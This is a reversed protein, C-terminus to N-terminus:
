AAAKATAGEVRILINGLLHSVQEMSRVFPICQDVFDMANGDFAGHTDSADSWYASKMMEADCRDSGQCYRYLCDRIKERDVLERFAAIEDESLTTTM